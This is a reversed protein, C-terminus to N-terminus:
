LFPSADGKGDRLLEPVDETIDLVTTPQFGCSGSDIILDVDHALRERIEDPDNMPLEAGPLILTSSMIPEGLVSLLEWVVANDPVRIGISKRKPNQLRRPVEGTARLSFTFPGPTMSKLLRYQINGVKAYTAIESLDKCVLTFNHNRDTRRIRQIREMASKDGLQCGLAYCSDTPYVVVAGDRIMEVAQRVLRPQPNEAHIQFYQTM